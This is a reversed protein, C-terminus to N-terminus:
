GGASAPEETAAQGRDLLTEFLAKVGQCTDKDAADLQSQVTRLFEQEWAESQVMEATHRWLQLMCQLTLVLDTTTLIGCLRGQDVVPLSSIGARILHTTAPSILTDSSITKVRKSMLEGATKGPKGSLDRDSVIGLLVQGPGCVPLHRVHAQLMLDQVSQRGAGPPATIIETTMLHRVALQNKLLISPDQAFLRLLQQRKACFREQLDPPEGPDQPIPSQKCSASRRRVSLLYGLGIMGGGLAVSAWFVSLWRNENAPLPERASAESRRCDAPDSTNVEPSSASLPGALAMLSQRSCIGLWAGAGVLTVILLGLLIAYEIASHGNQESFLRLRFCQRKDGGETALSMGTMTLKML